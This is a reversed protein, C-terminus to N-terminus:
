SCHPLSISYVSSGQIRSGLCERQHSAILLWTCSLYLVCKHQLPVLSNRASSLNSVQQQLLAHCVLRHERLSLSTLNAMRISFHPTDHVALFQSGPFHPSKGHHHRRWPSPASRRGPYRQLLHLGEQDQRGQVQLVAITSFVLFLHSFSAGRM